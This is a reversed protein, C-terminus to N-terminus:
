AAARLGEIQRLWGAMQNWSAFNQSVVKGLKNMSHAKRMVRGDAKPTANRAVDNLSAHGV